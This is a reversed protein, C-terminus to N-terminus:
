SANKVLHLRAIQAFEEKLAPYLRRYEQYYKAYLKRAQASPKVTRTISIAQQCAQRIDKFRGTGVSALLAM